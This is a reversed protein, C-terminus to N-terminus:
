LRSFLYGLDDSNIEFSTGHDYYNGSKPGSRYVSVKFSVRIVGKEILFLFTEFDKLKFIKIDNYLFYVKNHFFQRKAYVFALYTLKTELRSKLMEFSWYSQKDIVTNTSSDYVVFYIKREIYDVDLKIKWKKGIKTFENARAICFFVKADKYVEDYIGYKESIRKMEFPFLGDFTSSFLTVYKFLNNQKTKIEIGNFDPKESRNPNLGLEKEFTLGVNGRGNSSAEIWGKNKIREFETQLTMIDSEM